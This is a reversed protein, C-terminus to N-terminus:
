PMAKLRWTASSYRAPAAGATGPLRFSWHRLNTRIQTLLHSGPFYSSPARAASMKCSALVAALMGANTKVM